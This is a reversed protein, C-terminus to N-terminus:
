IEVKSRRSNSWVVDIVNPYRVVSKWWICADVWVCVRASSGSSWCSLLYSLCACLESTTSSNIIFCSCCFYIDGITNTDFSLPHPHSGPPRQCLPGFLLKTLIFFTQVLFFPHHWDMLYTESPINSYCVCSFFFSCSVPEGDIKPCTHRWRRVTWWRLSILPLLLYPDSFTSATARWILM